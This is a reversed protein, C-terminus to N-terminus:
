PYSNSTLSEYILRNLPWTREVTQQRPETHKDKFVLTVVGDKLIAYPLNHRFANRKAVLDAGKIAEELNEKDIFKKM